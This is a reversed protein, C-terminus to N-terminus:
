ELVPQDHDYLAGNITYIDWVENKIFYEIILDSVSAPSLAFGASKLLDKADDLNLELALAFMLVTKKRPQYDTDCQIKSFLKRDIGAKKYVQASAMGSEDIFRLLRQSFTEGINKVAEELGPAPMSAMLVADCCSEKENKAGFLQKRLSFTKEKNATGIYNQEIYSDIGLLLAKIRKDETM